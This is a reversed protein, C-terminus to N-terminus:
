EGRTGINGPSATFRLGPDQNAPTKSATASVAQPAPWGAVVPVAPVVPLAPAIPLPPVVPTAPVPTAPVV